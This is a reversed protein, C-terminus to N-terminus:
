KRGQFVTGVICKRQDRHHRLNDVQQRLGDREYIDCNFAIEQPRVKMVHLVSQALSPHLMAFLHDRVSKDDADPRLGAVGLMQVAAHVQIIEPALQGNLLLLARDYLPTHNGDTRKLERDLFHAEGRLSSKVQIGLADRGLITNGPEKMYAWVDIQRADDDGYQETPLIPDFCPFLRKKRCGEVASLAAIVNQVSTKGREIGNDSYQQWENGRQKYM